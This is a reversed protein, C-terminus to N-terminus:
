TNNIWKGQGKKQNRDLVEPIKRIETEMILRIEKAIFREAKEEIRKGRKIVTKEIIESKPMESFNIEMMGYIEEEMKAGLIEKVRPTIMNEMIEIINDEMREKIKEEEMRRRLEKEFRQTMKYEIKGSLKEKMREGKGMGM